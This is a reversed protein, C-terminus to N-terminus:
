TKKRTKVPNPGGSPVGSAVMPFPAPPPAITPSPARAGALLMALQSPQPEGEDEPQYGGTPDDYTGM